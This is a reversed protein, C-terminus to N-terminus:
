ECTEGEPAGRERADEGNRVRRGRDHELREADLGILEGSGLSRELKCQAGVAGAIAAAIRGAGVM